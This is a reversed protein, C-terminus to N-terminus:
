RYDKPREEPRVHRPSKGSLLLHRFSRDAKCGDKLKGHLWKHWEHYHQRAAFCIDMIGADPFASQYSDLLSQRDILETSDQAVSKLAETTKGPPHPGTDGQMYQNTAHWLRERVAEVIEPQTVGHFWLTAKPNGQEINDLADLVRKIVRDALRSLWPPYRSDTRFPAYFDAEKEFLELAYAVVSDRFHVPRQPPVPINRPHYNPVQMEVFVPWHRQNVEYIADKIREFTRDDLPPREPDIM